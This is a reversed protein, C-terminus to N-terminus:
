IHILSLDEENDISVFPSLRLIDQLDRTVSPATEFTESDIVTTYGDRDATIRSGTM